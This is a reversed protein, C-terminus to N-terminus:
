NAEEITFSIPILRDPTLPWTHDSTVLGEITPSTIVVASGDALPARIMPGINLSVAGAGDATALAKVQHLYRNGAADTVNIWWGEKIVTGAALGRVPLTTGSPNAGNVVPTGAVAQSVGLLPWDVRLVQSRGTLLRTLISNAVDPLQAPLDIQAGWRTGPKDVRSVPAGTAPRIFVGFDILRPTALAPVVGAPLTIM